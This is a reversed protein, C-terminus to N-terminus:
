SLKRRWSRTIQGESRRFSDADPTYINMYTDGGRTMHRGRDNAPSIGLREGHSVAAVPVNNISLMNRDVGSFGKIMFSGGGALRPGVWDGAIPPTTVPGTAGGTSGGFIGSLFSLPNGGGLVSGFAQQMNMRAIGLLFQKLTDLLADKASDFGESLKMAADILGEFGQVQLREFAEQAKAATTPLSALWDEMPTRTSAMVGARDLEYQGPLADLRAQAEARVAATLQKDAIIRELRQREEQYALDLLRLEITRRESATEALNAQAQLARRQIDFGVEILRNQEEKKEAAAQDAVAQRRLADADDYAAMLQAAQAQSMGQKGKTIQYQAVEYDLHAKYSARDADLMQLEIAAREDVEIALQRQAQLIDQQSRRMEQDFQYAERLAQLAEQESNDRKKSGGSKPSALFPSIQTPNIPAATKGAAAVARELLGIQRQYEARADKLTNAPRADSRHFSILGGSSPKDDRLAHYRSRADRFAKQRFAISNNADAASRQMAGGTAVGAFTGLAAGPLGGVRGGLLAGLIGLALQPNTNLFTLIERSLSALANSLNFIADANNAVVGAIQSALVTKVAALKDATQDARQIQEDSLVIGLKDAAAALENLAGTGRSLLNDLMSGTKGFLAVEVAARQARDPIKALGDAIMRFAEGTNKGKLDDVSIGIAAFAKAPEKAGAAVKGMTITLKSLGTELQEQSVGVQGAAFRFVQLDRTTVGLQQSLEGLSGAYDLARRIGASLIGVSFAAFFGTAASKATEMSRATLGAQQRVRKAGGEFAATEASFIVRLQGIVSSAM